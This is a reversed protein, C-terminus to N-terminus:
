DIKPTDNNKSDSKSISLLLISIYIVYLLVEIGVSMKALSSFPVIDGYGLTTFTVISFYMFEIYPNIEPSVGKFSTTDVGYILMYIIAFFHILHLFLAVILYREYVGISKTFINSLFSAYLYVLGTVGIILIFSGFMIGASRDASDVISKGIEIGGITQIALIGVLLVIGIIHETKKM